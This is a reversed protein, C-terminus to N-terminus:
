SQEPAGALIERVAASAREVRRGAEAQNDQLAEIRAIAADLAQALRSRDEQLAYFEAEHDALDLRRETKLGIARDLAELAAELRRVSGSVRDQAAPPPEPAANGPSPADGGSASGARPGHPDTPRPDIPLSLHPSEIPYGPSFAPLM